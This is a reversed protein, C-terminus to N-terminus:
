CQLKSLDFKPYWTPYWLACRRGRFYHAAEIMTGAIPTGGAQILGDVIDKMKQRVTVKSEVPSGEFEVILRVATAPNGDYSDAVRKGSGSVFMVLDNGPAWGSQGVIEQVIPGLGTAEHTQGVTNWNGPTWSVSASTRPRDTTDTINGNTSSFSRADESLEGRITLNTTTTDTEDATFVLKASTITAGQAIPLGTFRLGVTQDSGDDVMELDSSSINMNGTASEEADDNGSSITEVITSRVCGNAGAQPTDADYEITLIPAKSDDNEMSYAYRIGTPGTPREIMFSMANGGCWGSRNVVAQVQTTLDPTAYLTNDSSLWQTLPPTSTSNWDEGSGVFTRNELLQTTAYPAADDANEM